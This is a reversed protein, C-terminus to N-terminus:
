FEFIAVRIKCVFDCLFNVAPLLECMQFNSIAVIGLQVLTCPLSFFKYSDSNSKKRSRILKKWSKKFLLKLHIRTAADIRTHKVAFLFQLEFGYMKPLFALGMQTALLIIHLPMHCLLDKRNQIGYENSFRYKFENLNAFIWKWVLCCVDIVHQM